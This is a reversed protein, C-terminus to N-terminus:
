KRTSSGCQGVFVQFQGLDNPDAQEICTACSSVAWSGTDTVIQCMCELASESCNRADSIGTTLLAACQSVCENCMLSAYNLLSGVDALAPSVCEGCADVM